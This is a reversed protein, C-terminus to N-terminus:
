RWQKERDVTTSDRPPSFTTFILTCSQRKSLFGSCSIPETCFITVCYIRCRCTKRDPPSEFPLSAFAPLLSFALFFFHTVCDCCLRFDRNQLTQLNLFTQISNAIMSLIPWPTTLLQARCLMELQKIPLFHWRATTGSPLSSVSIPTVTWSLLDQYSLSRLNTLKIVLISSGFHVEGIANGEVTKYDKKDVVKLEVSTVPAGFSANKKEEESFIRYDFLNSQAVTGAVKATTLAYIVRAGTFARLETLQTSTFPPSGASSREFVYLLRLKSPEKGLTVMAPPNVRHLLGKSPMVGAKLASMQSSLAWKKATGTVKAKMTTHLNSASEASAAIFTPRIGTAALPLEVEPGAVSNLAISVNSYLAALTLVLTPSSTLADAPLFLDNNNLRHRQHLASLQAAVAAM